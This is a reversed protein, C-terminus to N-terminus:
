SNAVRGPSPRGATSPTRGSCISRSSGSSPAIRRQRDLDVQDLRHAGVAQQPARDAALGDRDADAGVIGIPGALRTSAQKWGSGHRATRRWSRRDGRVVPMTRDEWGSSLGLSTWSGSRRGARYRACNGAARPGARPARRSRSRRPRARDRRRRRRRRGAEARLISATPRAQGVAWRGTSRSSDSRAAKMSM